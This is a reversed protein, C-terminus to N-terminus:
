EIVVKKLQDFSKIDSLYERYIDWCASKLSNSYYKDYLKALEKAPLHESIEKSPINYMWQVMCYVNAIWDIVESDPHIYGLGRKDCSDMDVSLFPGKGATNLAILNGVDLKARYESKLLYADVISYFDREKNESFKHFVRRHIDMQYDLFIENYPHNM